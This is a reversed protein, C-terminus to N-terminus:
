TPCPQTRMPQTQPRAAQFAGLSVLLLGCLLGGGLAEGLVPAAALGALVPVLAILAGTREPGLIAVARLFLLMAVITPGIGQYLGQLLLVQPSVDALGKPLWLAYVPLFLVASALAVFRTLLWPSFGWRKALVSYFAWGVSSALILADGLLIAAGQGDVQRLYPWAVCGIGAAIGALGLMRQASPRQRFLLWLVGAVLFPQLGPLLIAGHAAPALKFGAYVLVGYLVGGVAALLWLRTDRWYVLGIDRCFPLLLLAATGLRLALIDYATLATKGGLRSILIFGTWIAVTGAAALYGGFLKPSNQM